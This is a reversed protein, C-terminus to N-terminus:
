HHDPAAPTLPVGADRLVRQITEAPVSFTIGYDIRANRQIYLRGEYPLLLDDEEIARAEPVLMYDAEASASSALGVWELANTDGRGAVILGGSIGRNFLGDLLFAHERSRNPESVIGRTVMQFGRPYGLVYVFSGWALKSADGVPLSLVPPSNPTADDTIEVGLVAVDAATDRALVTFPRNDPVGVVLYRRSTLISVSEVYRGPRQRGSADLERHYTVLTDPLNIVHENTILTARGIAASVLTATGTKSHDFTYRERARRYTARDRIAATAISDALAFRSTEYYGTVQVRKVSRLIRELEGSTDRIPYGTQYYAQPGRETRVYGRACAGASLGLALIPLLVSGRM